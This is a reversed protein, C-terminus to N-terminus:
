RGRRPCAEVHFIRTARPVPFSPRCRGLFIIFSARLEGPFFELERSENPTERRLTHLIKRSKGDLKVAALAAPGEGITQPIDRSHNATLEKVPVIGRAPRAVKQGAFDVELVPFTTSAMTVGVPRWHPSDIGFSNRRRASQSM